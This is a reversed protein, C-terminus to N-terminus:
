PLRELEHFADPDASDGGFLVFRGRAARSDIVYWLADAVNWIRTAPDCLLIGRLSVQPGDLAWTGTRFM